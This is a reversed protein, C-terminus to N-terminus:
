RGGLCAQGNLCSQNSSCEKKAWGVTSFPKPTKHYPMLPPALTNKGSLAISGPRTWSATSGEM